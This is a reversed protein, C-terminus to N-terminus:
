ALMHAVVAVLALAASAVQASSAAGFCETTLPEGGPNKWMMDFNSDSYYPPRMSQFFKFEKSQPVGNLSVIAGAADLSDTYYDSSLVGVFAAPNGSDDLNNDDGGVNVSADRSDTLMLGCKDYRNVKSTQLPDEYMLDLAFATCIRLMGFKNHSKENQTTATAAGKLDVNANSGVQDVGMYRTKNANYWNIYLDSQPDCGYCYFQALAAYERVCTGSFLGGYADGITSDQASVCCANSNQKYCQSLSPFPKAPQKTASGLLFCSDSDPMDTATAVALLTAAAFSRMM